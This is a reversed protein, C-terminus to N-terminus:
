AQGALWVELEKEAAKRELGYLEQLKGVLRESQGEITAIDDDTLRGWKERLGGKLVHWKGELQDINM